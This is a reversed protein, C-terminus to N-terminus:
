GRNATSRHVIDYKKKDPVDSENRHESDNRARALSRDSCDPITQLASVFEDRVLKQHSASDSGSITRSTRASPKPRYSARGLREPDAEYKTAPLVAGRGRGARPFLFSQRFPCMSRKFQVTQHIHPLSFRFSGCCIFM